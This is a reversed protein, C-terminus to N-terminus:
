YLCRAVESGFWLGLPSGLLTDYLESGTNPSELPYVLPLVLSLGVLSGEGTGIMLGDMTRLLFGVLYVKWTGFSNFLELDLFINISYGLTSGVNVVLVM